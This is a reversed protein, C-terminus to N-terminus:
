CTTIGFKNIVAGLTNAVRSYLEHFSLINNSFPEGRTEPAGGAASAVSAAAVTELCDEWLNIDRLVESQKERNQRPQM